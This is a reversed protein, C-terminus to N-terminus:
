PESSSDDDPGMEASSSVSETGGGDVPADSEAESSESGSPGPESSDPESADPESSSYGEPVLAEPLKWRAGFDRKLNGLYLWGDHEEASTVEPIVEGGPDQFSAVITGAEDLQLVSGYPEPQPWLSRPMKVLLSKMFPKPQLADARENRVTFCAVWFTGRRNSSVGDPICPLNDIFVDSTGAKPGALWYRSIRYRYTENVLVFDENQSLAIGNAFYLDDLLTTTSEDAPDYVLLRGHPKAELLDYLYHHHGWRHSADSFYIKGDAAIDVDDTFAFPLGDAETTLTDVQIAGDSTVELRLLGAGADAIILRGEADFHLGLPRGGTDYVTEVVGDTAEGPRIKVIRGDELGAWVIGDTDVALDEPGVIQGQALREASELAENPATPGALPPPPQPTWAAPDIPSPWLVFITAIALLFILLSRYRTM